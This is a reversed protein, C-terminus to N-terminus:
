DKSMFASKFVQLAISTWQQDDMPNHLTDDLIKGFALSQITLAISRPDYVSVVFGKAQALELAQTMEDLRIEEMEALALKLSTSNMSKGIANIRRLRSSKDEQKELSQILRVFGSYFEDTTSSDSVLRRLSKWREQDLERYQLIQAETVLDGFNNFFHYMSSKSVGSDTLVLTSTVRDIGLNEILKVTSDLLKRKTENNPHSMFM